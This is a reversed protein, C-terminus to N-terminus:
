SGVINTDAKQGKLGAEAFDPGRIIDSLLARGEVRFSYGPVVQFIV